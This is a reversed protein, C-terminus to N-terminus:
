LPERRSRTPFREDRPDSCEITLGEFPMRTEIGLVLFRSKWHLVNFLVKSNDNAKVSIHKMGTERTFSMVILNPKSNVHVYYSDIGINEITEPSRHGEGFRFALKGPYKGKVPRYDRAILIKGQLLPRFETWLLWLLLIAAVCIIANERDVKSLLNAWPPLAESYDEIDKPLWFIGFIATAFLITRWFHRIIFLM